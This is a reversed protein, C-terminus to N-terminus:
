ERVTVQGKMYPHISCHYEYRGPTDFTVGGSDGDDLVDTAWADDDDTADHPAKDENVWTVTTGATITADRPSFDYDRIEITAEDGEITVPTQASGRSGPCGAMGGCGNMMGGMSGGMAIATFTVLAMVVIAGAGIAIALTATNRNPSNTSM